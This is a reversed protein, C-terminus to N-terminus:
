DFCKLVDRFESVGYGIEVFIVACLWRDDFITVVEPGM